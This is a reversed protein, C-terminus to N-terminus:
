RVLAHARHRLRQTLEANLQSSGGNLKSVENARSSIYQGELDLWSLLPELKKVDELEFDLFSVKSKFYHGLTQRDIVLFDDTPYQHDVQGSALRVPLFKYHVLDEPDGQSEEEGSIISNLAWILRTIEKTLGNSCASDLEDIIMGM